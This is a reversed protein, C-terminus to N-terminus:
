WSDPGGPLGFSETGDDYPYVPAVNRLLAHEIFADVQAFRALRELHKQTPFRITLENREARALADSPVVWIGDHVETADAAGAQGDPARAVFFHADFRIPESAPTIWNSYYVLARTDLVLGDARLLEVLPEGAAGRSRLEAQAGADLKARAGRADCAILIGAEEFLERLAAVAFSHPPEGDGPDVAGGPFVYADPMFRSRSNRRIMYVAIGAPDPRLVM